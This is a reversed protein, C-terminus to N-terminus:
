LIGLGAIVFSVALAVGLIRAGLVNDAMAPIYDSSDQIKYKSNLTSYTRIFLPISILIGVLAFWPIVRLVVGAIGLSIALIPYFAYFKAAGSIGMVVVVNKRGGAKDAVYDPFENVFVVSSSLVGLILGVYIPTFQVVRCQVYFSGLVILTGKIVLFIEGLGSSVVKTSYFYTSLVAFLLIVGVILGTTITFFIGILAGAILFLVGARYVSRPELLGDPLVRTGGSFPTGKTMLDIKNKYDFYDNLIDVSAHLSLVGVYTLIAYLINFM